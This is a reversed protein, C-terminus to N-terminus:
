HVLYRTFRSYCAYEARLPATAFHQDMAHMGALLDDFHQPSTALMISLGVASSLSFRGGVWSWFGFMNDVDIGFEAVGEANTSVAIFHKKVDESSGSKLFWAKASRANTMTEITTFTKSAVIFLTTAPDLNVLTQHIDTGDVNSVFHVSRNPFGFAKLAQTVMMPGLDSGGIGINVVDTIAQNNYGKIEGTNLKNCFQRMRKLVHHVDTIVDRGALELVEGEPIRLATHLVSRGETENIPAGSMMKEMGDKLHVEKALSHLEHLIEDTVLNKSFDLYFDDWEISYKEVRDQDSDFLLSLNLHAKEEAKSKLAHWANTTTPNIKLLTSM